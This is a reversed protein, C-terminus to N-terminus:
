PRGPGTNESELMQCHPCYFTARQGQVIREIPTGCTSCAEGGRGYVRLLKQYRGTRGRADQFDSFTTGCYRIARKLVERTAKHLRRTEDASLSAGHREPHLGAEFLIESAYINGLGVLRDQRLLWVKLPQNAGQVMQRLTNPTFGSSLPDIGASSEASSDAALTFTGFRRPDYFLLCGRDLRIRARLHRPPADACTEAWVLRGTMRLHVLLLRQEQRKSTELALQKGCRYVRGILAGELLGPDITALKPDIIECRLIRCGTILPALQRAVTEVEPLEPM